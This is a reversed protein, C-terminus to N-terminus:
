FKYYLFLSLSTTVTAVAANDGTLMRAQSAALGIPIRPQLGLGDFSVAYSVNTSRSQNQQAIGDYYQEPDSAWGYYGLVSLTSLSPHLAGLAYGLRLYGDNHPVKRTVKYNNSVKDGDGPAGIDAGIVNPDATNLQDPDVLSHRKYQPGKVYFETTNSLSAVLPDSIRYDYKLAIGLSTAGSGTRNFSKEDDGKGTPLRIGTGVAFSQWKSSYVSFLAAVTIDSLGTAGPGPKAASNILSDAADKVPLGKVTYLEGTPLVLPANIPIILPDDGKERNIKELCTDADTCLGQGILFPVTVDMLEKYKKAYVKSQRFKNANITVDNNKIYPILLQVSIKDTLGYEFAYANVNIVADIGIDKKNGGLEFTQDGAVNQFVYRFRLVKEPLTQAEGVMVYKAVEPDKGRRKMIADTTEKRNKKRSKKMEDVKEKIKEGLGEEEPKTEEPKKEETAGPEPTPTTAAPTETPAPPPAPEASPEVPAPTEETQAGLHGTHFGLCLGLVLLKSTLRATGRHSAVMSKM